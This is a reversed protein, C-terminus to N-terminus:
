AKRPVEAQMAGHHPVSARPLVGHAPADHVGSSHPLMQTAPQGFGIPDWKPPNAFEGGM